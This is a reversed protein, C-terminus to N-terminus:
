FHDRIKAATRVTSCEARVAGDVDAIVASEFPALDASKERRHPGGRVVGGPADLPDIEGGAAGLANVFCEVAFPEATRVVDHEIAGAAEPERVHALAERALAIVAAQEVCARISRVQMPCDM